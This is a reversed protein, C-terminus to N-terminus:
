RVVNKHSHSYYTEEFIPAYGINEKFVKDNFTRIFKGRSDEFKPLEILFVGELTTKHFKM